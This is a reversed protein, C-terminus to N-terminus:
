RAAGAEILVRAIDAHGGYAAISLPASYSHVQNVDAGEQILRKVAAVDDESIAIRLPPTDQASVPLAGLVFIAAIMSVVLQKMKEYEEQSSLEAVLKGLEQFERFLEPLERPPFRRYCSLPHSAYVALRFAM